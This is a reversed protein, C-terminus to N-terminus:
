DRLLAFGTPASVMKGIPDMVFTNVVKISAAAAAFSITENSV